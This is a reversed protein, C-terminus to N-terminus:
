KFRVKEFIQKSAKWTWHTDDIFFLDKEGRQVAEQLLEKTDILIYRKPLKRLEEFFISDNRPPDLYPGYLDLRSVVPMFVFRINKEALKDAIFNLNDNVARIVNGTINISNTYEDCYYFLRDGYKGSFMTRCLNARYVHNNIKRVPFLDKINYYIFKLNGENIFSTIGVVNRLEYKPKFAAYYAVLKDLPASADFRFHFFLRDPAYREVSELLLYRPKLRDLMGSNYLVALTEVPCYYGDVADDIKSPINVVTINSNSAIYDQYFPNKGAGGGMSFSDGVTVMDVKGGRFENIPIYRRPLDVGTGHLQRIKTLYSLRVLDSARSNPVLLDKTFYIWILYNIAEFVVLLLIFLGAFSKYTLRKEGARVAM